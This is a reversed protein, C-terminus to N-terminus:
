KNAFFGEYVRYRSHGDKFLGSKGSTNVKDKSVATDGFRGGHLQSTVPPILSESNLPKLEARAAWHEPSAAMM